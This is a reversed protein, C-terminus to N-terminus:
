ALLWFNKHRKTTILYGGLKNGKRRVAITMCSANQICYEVFGGHHNNRKGRWRKMFRWMMSRKRQGLVLLSVKEKKAEEVIVRGKEKGELMPMAVEVQVGPRKTQCITKMYRLIEFAKLKLKQNYEEGQKSPNIIHLLLISDQTQVTHTLAWELAGKAEVTSDVVVMVKNSGDRLEGQFGYSDVEEEDNGLFETTQDTESPKSRISPSRVQVRSLSRRMSFSPSRLRSPTM